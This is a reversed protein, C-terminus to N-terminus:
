ERGILATTLIDAGYGGWKKPVAAKHVESKIYEAKTEMPFTKNEDAQQGYKDFIKALDRAQNLLFEREEPTIEPTHKNNMYTPGRHQETPTTETPPDP